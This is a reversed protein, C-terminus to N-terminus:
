LQLCQCHPTGMTGSATRSLCNGANSHSVNFINNLGMSPTLGSLEFEEEESDRKEQSCGLCGHLTLVVLYCVNQHWKSAKQEWPLNDKM